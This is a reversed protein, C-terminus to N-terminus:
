NTNFYRLYDLYKEINSLTILDFNLKGKKGDVNFNGTLLNIDQSVKYDVESYYNILRMNKLNDYFKFKLSLTYNSGFGMMQSIILAGNEYIFKHYMDSEWPFWYYIGNELYRTTLYVVVIAKSQDSNACLIALDKKGDHDFDEDCRIVKEDNEKYTQYGEPLYFTGQGFSSFSILAFLLNVTLIKFLRM